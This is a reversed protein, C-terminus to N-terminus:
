CLVFAEQITGIMETFKSCRIFQHRDLSSSVLFIPWELWLFVAKAVFKWGLSGDWCWVSRSEHGWSSYGAMSRQGLCSSQVPNGNGEGSSRGSGPILGMDRRGGENAASEKGGAGSLFSRRFEMERCFGVQKGEALLLHM